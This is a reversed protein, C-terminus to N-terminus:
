WCQQGAPYTILDMEFCIPNTMGWAWAYPEILEVQYIKRSVGTLEMDLDYQCLCNAANMEEAESIFITDNEEHIEVTIQGPYCNFFVNLHKMDLINTSSNYEWTICNITDWRSQEKNGASMNKCDSFNIVTGSIKLHPDDDKRNQCSLIVMLIFFLIIYIRKKLMSSIDKV